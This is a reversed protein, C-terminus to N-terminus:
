TNLIRKVFPDDKIELKYEASQRKAETLYYSYNQAILISKNVFDDTNEAEEYCKYNLLKKLYTSGSPIILPIEHTLCSYFIGSGMVNLHSAPYMLPMINIKKLLNRYELYDCYKEIIELNPIQNAMKILINRTERTEDYTKSFQILYRINKNKSYLKEIFEPLQNFGKNVRADGVFGINIPKNEKERIFFTYIQNFIFVKNKLDKSKEEILKKSYDIESYINIQNDLIKKKIKNLYFFFGMFNNKPPYLVRIHIKPIKKEISTLFYILAIDKRRCSQIIIQDYDKINQKVYELYFPKFYRPIILYNNILVKIFIFLKKKHLFYFIFFIIQYINNFFFYIENLFYFLKNKNRKFKNSNILKKVVTQSPIFLDQEKFNKNVFWIINFKEKFFITAEILNDLNHGKGETMEAEFFLLRRNSNM